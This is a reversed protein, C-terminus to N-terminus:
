VSTASVQGALLEDLRDYGAAVGSEMPTRLVGDRAERSDYRVTMVLTTTGAHEVLEQTVLAEGPYWSPEFTETNVLRTPPTVERFVGSLDLEAGAHDTGAQGRWVYRFVGGVRLDIECVPMDWGPPGLFWRKLLEPRTLAEWVLQRPADFARTMRIERDSPTSIRLTHGSTM